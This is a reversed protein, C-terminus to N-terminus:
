TSYVIRGPYSLDTTAKIYTAVYSTSVGNGCGIDLARNHTSVLQALFHYLNGLYTIKARIKQYDTAINNFVEM